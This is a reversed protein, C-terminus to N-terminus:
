LNNIINQAADILIQGNEPSISGSNIFANIQNIFANLSGIAGNVNDSDVKDMAIDLKGLIAKTEGKNIELDGSTIMNEVEVIVDEIAQAAPFPPFPCGQGPFVDPNDDDCDGQNPTFTDGDCDMDPGVEDCFGAFALPSQSTILIMGVLVMSLVTMLTM